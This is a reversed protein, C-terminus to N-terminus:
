SLDFSKSKKRVKQPHEAIDREICWQHVKRVVYSDMNSMDKLEGPQAKTKCM